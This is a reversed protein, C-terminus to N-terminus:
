KEEKKHTPSHTSNQTTNTQQQKVPKQTKLSFCITQIEGKNFTVEILTKSFDIFVM